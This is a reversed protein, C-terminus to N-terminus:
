VLVFYKEKSKFIKKWQVYVWNERKKLEKLDKKERELLILSGGLIKDVEEFFYIDGFFIKLEM